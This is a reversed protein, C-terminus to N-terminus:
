GVQSAITVLLCFFLLAPVPVRPYAAQLPTLCIVALGAAMGVIGGAIGGEWTKNPSVRPSMPHKGVSKGVVFAAMDSGKGAALLFLLYWAQRDELRPPLQLAYSLLSLYGFGLYTLAAGDPALSGYRFVIMALLYLLLGLSAAEAAHDVIWPRTPVQAWPFFYVATALMGAWPATSIGKAACMSCIEHVCVVAVVLVLVRVPTNSGSRQQVANGWLIVGCLAAILLPAGVIRVLLKRPLPM